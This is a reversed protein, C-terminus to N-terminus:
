FQKFSAFRHFSQFPQFREENALSKFPASRNFTKFTKFWERKVIRNVGAGMPSIEKAFSQSHNRKSGRSRHFSQFKNKPQLVIQVSRM